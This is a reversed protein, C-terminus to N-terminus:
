LFYHIVRPSKVGKANNSKTIGGWGDRGFTNLSM